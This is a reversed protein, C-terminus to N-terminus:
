ELYDDFEHPFTPEEQDEEEEENEHEVIVAEGCLKEWLTRNKVIVNDWKERLEIDGGPEDIWQQSWLLVKTCSSNWTIWLRCFKKAVNSIVSEMVSKPLNEATCIHRLQQQTENLIDTEQVDMLLAELITEVKTAMNVAWNLAQRAERSIRRLEDDCNTIM